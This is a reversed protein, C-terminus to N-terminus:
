LITKEERWDRIRPDTKDAIERRSEEQTTCTECLQEVLAISLSEKTIELSTAMMQSEEIEKRAATQRESTTGRM